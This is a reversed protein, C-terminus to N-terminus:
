HKHTTVSVKMPSTNPLVLPFQPLFCLRPLEPPVGRVGLHSGKSARKAGRGGDIKPERSPSSAVSALGQIIWNKVLGQLTQIM